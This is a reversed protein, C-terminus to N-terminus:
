QVPGGDLRVPSARGITQAVADGVMVANRAYTALKSLALLIAPIDPREASCAKILAETQGEVCGPFEVSVANVFDGFDLLHQSELVIEIKFLDTM